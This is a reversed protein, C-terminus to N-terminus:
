AAAALAAAAVRTEFGTGFRGHLWAVVASCVSALYENDIVPEYYVPLNLEEGLAKALTSKGAGIMGSISIFVNEMQYSDSMNPHCTSPSAPLKLDTM